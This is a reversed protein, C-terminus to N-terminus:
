LGGHFLVVLSSKRQINSPCRKSSARCIRAASSSCFRLSQPSEEGKLVSFTYLHLMAKSIDLYSHLRLLSIVHYVAFYLACTLGFANENAPVAVIRSDYCLIQFPKKFLKM